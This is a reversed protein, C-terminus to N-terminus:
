PIRSIPNIFGVPVPTTSWGGGLLLDYHTLTIVFPNGGGNVTGSSAEIAFWTPGPRSLIAQSEHLRVEGFRRPPVTTTITAPASGDFFSLKITITNIQDTPNYIYLTETYKSGALAPDIFADGFLYRVGAYGTATSSDADRNRIADGAVVIPLNSSYRLGAPQEAILGFDASSLIVQGGPKIDFTRGFEPLNARMYSGIVTVTAPSDSPNFLVAESSSTQGQILNTVAGSKSGGDPDGLVGFAASGDATYHSLSAVIGEFSAQNTSSTARSTLVVSFVGTPLNLMDNLAFGGRRQGAVTTTSSVPDADTQYATLTVDVSFAAPNYFTIFDLVAGPQREARAFTWSQSLRETFSDGVANGFDYHALTAGLPQDAAIEVSYPVNKRLGPVQFATGDVVTLGGRANAAVTGGPVVTASGGDEYRLTVAYNAAVGTPNVISIFERISDSAFGEPFYLYNTFSQTNVCLRYSGIADGLGDIVVWYQKNAEGIFSTSATVGPIGDADFAVESTTQENPNRLVRISADLLSGQPTTLQVFVRGAATTTFTYLDRDGPVQIMDDACGDGTRTNTTFHSPNNFDINSATGGGDGGGGNSPEPGTMKIRYEGTFTAGPVGTAAEVLVYFKTGIAINSLTISVEQLASSAAATQLVVGAADMVTVRPALRGYSTDFPLVSVVQTGALITTFTFLDTDNAPQIRPNTVGDGVFDGGIQGSGTSTNINIVANSDALAFEGINPYDDLPRTNVSVTYRGFNVTQTNPTMPDEFGEVVVYYTTNSVADFFLSAQFFTASDDGISQAIINANGDLVTVKPRILSGTPRSVLVGAEGTTSATFKFLDSDASTEIDGTINGQGTGTDIVIPAAYQYEGTDYVADANTDGDPYDDTATFAVTVRYQGQDGNPDLGAVRIYYYPYERNEGPPAVQIIRDPTVPNRVQITRVGAANDNTAVRLVIPNNVDALGSDGTIDESIEWVRLTPRMSADIGQVTITYTGFTRPQFRFIDSDGPNEISADVSGSGLFDFLKIDPANSLIHDTPADDVYPATQIDIRYTGETGSFGQSLVFYQEGARAAFSGSVTAGPQGNGSGNVVLLLQGSNPDFKGVQLNAILTSSTPVLSVTTVGSGPVAFVMWDADNPNAPTNNIEGLISGRGDDGVAIPTAVNGNNFDPANDTHDDVVERGNEVDRANLPMDNVLLAYSGTAYRYDIERPINPVREAPDAPAGNSYKVASEVQIYYTKGAEVDIVARPDRSFFSAINTGAFDNQFEGINAPNNDFYGIQIFDNNFVRIAADLYSSVTATQVTFDPLLEAFVDAILSTSIRIEAAGDAEARFYYMDVDDITSIIGFDGAETRANGTSPHVRGARTSNGHLPQNETNVQNTGDGTTFNTNIKTATAFQGNGGEEGYTSNIDFVTGDDGLTPQVDARLSITYRGTGGTPSSVEIYYVSGGWVGPIVLANNILPPGATSQDIGGAPDPFPPSITDNTYIVNFNSDFIRVFANIFSGSAPSVVLQLRTAPRDHRDWEAPNGDDFASLAFVTAAPAPPPDVVYDVGNNMAAWTFADDGNFPGTIASFQAIHSAPIPGGPGPNQVTTFDGGVYLVEQPSGNDLPDTVSPEQADTVAELTWVIGNTGPGFFNNSYAGIAGVPANDDLPGYEAINGVPIGGLDTFDGGIVLVSPIVNASNNIDPPNWVQLAHIPGNTDSPANEDLFEWVLIPNYEPVSPDQPNPTAGGGDPDWLKRGFKAINGVNNLNGIQTFEGAVVLVKAAERRGADGDPDLDDIVAFAYVPGNTSGAPQPRSPSGFELAGIALGDWTALNNRAGVNTTATFQGGIILSIPADPADLVEDLAPPDGGPGPPVAPRQAGADPPDWTTLAYVPGDVGAGLASWGANLDLAALHNAALGPTYQGFADVAGAVDTFDGGIYLQPGSPDPGQPATGSGDPDFAVPDYVTAARVTGNVSGGNAWEWRGSQQNYLWFALNRIFQPGFPTPVILDFDGGVVLIHQLPNGGAQGSPNWDYLVHIEANDTGATDPNNNFGYTVNFNPDFSQNGTYWYDAADWVALTRNTVPFPTNPDAQNFSGGIYLSTGQDDNNGQYTTLMDVPPVFQFVDTDGAGWIRGQGTASVVQGRDRLPNNDPDLLFTAQTFRLVTSEKFVRRANAQEAATPPQTLPPTNVHDDIPDAPDFTHNAEIDLTFQVQSNVEFGDVVIFYRHGGVLPVQLEASAGIYDDNLKILRGTDDFVRVAPDTVPALGTPQVTIFATEDGQAIFTYSATQFTPPTPTPPPPNNAPGFGIFADATSFLRTVPNLPTEAAKGDLVLFFLGTALNANANRIEDSRVRIYFTQGPEAKITTFADQLRGSVSDAAIQAGTSDYVELRTDLRRTLNTQTSQADITVISNYTDDNPVVYKYVIDQQRLGLVGFIPTIPPMGTALNPVPSGAERGIGVDAPTEQGIDFTTSTTAVRLTYTGQAATESSVVVYYTHNAEAVFGVWGDRAVGSTLTGNTSGTAVIDTLNASGYVTVKTNLNSAAAENSTDALVRVFDTTLPTFQFYDNDTTPTAPNITGTGTGNGAGDLNVMIATAFSGELMSREELGELTLRRDAGPATLGLARGVGALLSSASFSPVAGGRRHRSAFRSMSPLEVKSLLSRLNGRDM